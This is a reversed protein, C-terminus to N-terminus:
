RRRERQLDHEHPPSLQKCDQPATNQNRSERHSRFGLMCLTNAYEYSIAGGVIAAPSYLCKLASKAVLAPPGTFV